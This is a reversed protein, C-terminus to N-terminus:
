SRTTPKLVELRAWRGSTIASFRSCCKAAPAPRCCSTTRRSCRPTTASWTSRSRCRSRFGGGTARARRRLDALELESDGHFRIRDELAGEVTTGADLKRGNLEADTSRLATVQVKLGFRVELCSERSRSRELEVEDDDNIKLFVHPLSVNKKANFYFALDQYTLVQEGVVVRAGPYIRCFEGRGLLRGRVTVSQGSLNKLLILDHYRYALLAGGPDIGRISVEGTGDATLRLAELPSTGEQYVSTDPSEAANLQYVIDIAQAAMGLQAMFSYYAVVQDQRMGSKAILDYLQVCLLIKRDPSLEASLRQAMASLDQQEQLAQRFLERLESYVAEPYDYRLFGLSSDIEEEIAEGGATKSFGALVKILVPLLNPSESVTRPKRRVRRGFARGVRQLRYGLPALWGSTRTAAATGATRESETESM